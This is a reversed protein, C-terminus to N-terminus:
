LSVRKSGCISWSVLLFCLARFGLRVFRFPVFPSQKWLCSIAVTCGPFLHFPVLAFRFPFSKRWCICAFRSPYSQNTTATQDVAKGGGKWNSNLIHPALNYSDIHFFQFLVPSNNTECHKSIIICGRWFHQKARESATSVAFLNLPLPFFLQQALQHNHGPPLCIPPPLFKLFTMTRHPLGHGSRDLCVYM